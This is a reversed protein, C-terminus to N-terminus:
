EGLRCDWTVVAYKRIGLCPDGGLKLNASRITCCQQDNCTSVRATVDNYRQCLSAFKTPCVKEGERRGYIASAQAIRMSVPCCITVSNGECIVQINTIVPGAPCAPGPAGDSGKNGPAGPDGKPGAPGTGGKPGPPGTGGKPLNFYNKTHKNQLVCM